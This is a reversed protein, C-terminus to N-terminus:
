GDAYTALIDQQLQDIHFRRRAEKQANSGLRHRHTPDSILQALADLIEETHERDDVLVATENEVVVEPIGGVRTSIVPLGRAMAEALVIGFTEFRPLHVMIDAADLPDIVNTLAGTFLIRDSLDLDRAMKECYARSEGDGVLTLTADLSHENVLKGLLPIIFEHGKNGTFMAIGILNVPKGPSGDNQSMEPVPAFFEDDLTANYVVSIKKEPVKAEILRRRVDKSVAIVKGPFIRNTWERGTGLVTNVHIRRQPIDALAAYFGAHFNFSNVVAVKKSRMLMAINRICGPTGRLSRDPIALGHIKHHEFGDAVLQEAYEGGGSAICVSHGAMRLARAYAHM